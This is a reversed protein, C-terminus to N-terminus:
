IVQESMHANFCDRYLFDSGHIHKFIWDIVMKLISMAHKRQDEDVAHFDISDLKQIFTNHEHIHAATGDYGFDEFYKEEVGFHFVTYEKLSDVIEMIEDYIDGEASTNLLTYLENGIEFLHKHQDDIEQIGLAYEESWNFM